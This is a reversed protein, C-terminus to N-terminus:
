NSHMQKKKPQYYGKSNTYRTIHKFLNYCTQHNKKTRTMGTNRSLYTCNPTTHGQTIKLHQNQRITHNLFNTTEQWFSASVFLHQIRPQPPLVIFM